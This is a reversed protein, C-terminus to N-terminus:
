MEGLYKLMKESTEYNKKHNSISNINIMLRDLEIDNITAIFIHYSDVTTKKKDICVNGSLELFEALLYEACPLLLEFVNIDINIDKFFKKIQHLNSNRDLCLDNIDTGKELKTQYKIIEDYAHKYLEGDVVTKLISSIVDLDITGKEYKRKMIESVTRYFREIIYISIYERASVTINLDPHVQKLVKHITNYYIM